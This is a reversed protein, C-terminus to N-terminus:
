EAPTKKFKVSGKKSLSRQLRKNISLVQLDCFECYQCKGFICRHWRGM